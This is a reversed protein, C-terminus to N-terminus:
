HFRGPRIKAGFKQDLLLLITIIVPIFLLFSSDSLGKIVNIYGDTLQRIADYIGYLDQGGAHGNAFPMLIPILAICAAIPALIFVWAKKSIIPSYEAAMGCSEVREMVSVAFGGPAEELGSKQILGSMFKDQTIENEKM